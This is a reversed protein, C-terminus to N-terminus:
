RQQQQQQQEQQLIRSHCRLSLRANAMTAPPETCGPSPTSHLIRPMSCTFLVNFPARPTLPWGYVSINCTIIVRSPPPLAVCVQIMAQMGQTCAQWSM